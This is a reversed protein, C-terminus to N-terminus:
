VEEGCNYITIEPDAPKEKFKKWSFWDTEIKKPIWAQKWEGRFLLLLFEKLTLDDMTEYIIEFDISVEKQNPYKKYRIRGTFMWSHLDWREFIWYLDSDLKDSNHRLMKVELQFRGDKATKGQTLRGLDKYNDPTGDTSLVPRDMGLTRARIWIWVGAYSTLFLNLSHNWFSRSISEDQGGKVRSAM